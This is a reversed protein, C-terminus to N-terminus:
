LKEVSVSLLSVPQAPAVQDSALGRAAVAQVISLGEVVTGFISYGGGTTPLTTDGYVIFFQSGNSNPDSARAMAVTGAPYSGSAPANEIGYGYGPGGSGTGTPDGCQLVLLGQEPTTLRHCPSDDYYGAQSLFVFSAVTQPAVRGDLEMVIRGCNTQLTARWTARQSLSAPPAKDFQQPNAPLAPPESCDLPPLNSPPASSTPSATPGSQTPTPPTSPPSQAPTATSSGDGVLVGIAVFGAIVAVVVAAVVLVTASSARSTKSPEPSPPPSLTSM